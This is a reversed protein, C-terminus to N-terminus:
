GPCHPPSRPRHPSCGPQKAGPGNGSAEGGTAGVGCAASCWRAGREAGAGQACYAYAGHESPVKVYRPCTCSPPPAGVLIHFVWVFQLCVSPPGPPLPLSFSSAGPFAPLISPGGCFHLASRFSVFPEKFHPPRGSGQLTREVVKPICLPTGLSTPAFRGLTGVETDPM